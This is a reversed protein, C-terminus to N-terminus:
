KELNHEVAPLRKDLGYDEDDQRQNWSKYLM